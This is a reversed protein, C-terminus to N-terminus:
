RHWNKSFIVFPLWLLIMIIRAIIVWLYPENRGLVKRISNDLALNDDLMWTYLVWFFIYIIIITGM